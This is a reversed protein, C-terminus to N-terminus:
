HNTNLARQKNLYYKVPLYNWKGKPISKIREIEGDSRHKELYSKLELSYDDTWDLPDDQNEIKAMAQSAKQSDLDFYELM